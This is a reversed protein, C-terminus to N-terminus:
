QPVKWLLTIIIQVLNRSFFVVKGSSLINSYIHFFSFRIVFSSKCSIKMSWTTKKYMTQKPIQHHKVPWCFLFYVFGIFKSSSHCIFIWSFIQSYIFDSSSSAVTLVAPRCDCQGRQRQCTFTRKLIKNGPARRPVGDESYRRPIREETLYFTINMETVDIEKLQYWM